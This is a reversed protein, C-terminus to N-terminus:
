SNKPSCSAAAGTKGGRLGYIKSRSRLTFDHKRESLNTTYEPQHRSFNLSLARVRGDFALGLASKQDAGARLLRTIEDHHDARAVIGNVVHTWEANDLRLNGAKDGVV